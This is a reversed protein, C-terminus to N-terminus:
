REKTPKRIHSGVVRIFHLLAIAASSCFCVVGM